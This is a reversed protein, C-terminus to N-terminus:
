FWRVKKGDKRFASAPDNRDKRWSPHRFHIVFDGNYSAVGADFTLRGVSRWGTVTQRQGRPLAPNGSRKGTDSVALDFALTRRPTPDGRDYIRALVEDRVDDEDVTPQGAAVKLRLFEPARTPEDAGQGLEAVPYVQRMTAMRDVLEFVVGERLLVPLETGRNLGTVHPANTLEVEALRRSTSGGLDDAFFVNATRLPEAHDPDATPYLKLVLGFSRRPGRLTRSVGASIRAIALARSGKRFAGSYPNDESVEWRGTVCVGHPRVLRRFGRGDEGWRLDAGSDLARISALKFRPPKGFPLVGAYVSRNTVRYVPLPPEGPAGWVKQYPNAFLAAKVDAFRSGRYDRDERTLGQPGFIADPAPIQRM